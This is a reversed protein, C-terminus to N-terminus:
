LVERLELLLTRAADVISGIELMAGYREPEVGEYYAASEALHKNITDCLNACGELKRRVRHRVTYKRGM